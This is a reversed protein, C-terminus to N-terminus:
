HVQVRTGILLLRKNWLFNFVRGLIAEAPLFLKWLLFRDTALIIEQSEITALPRVHDRKWDRERANSDITYGVGAFVRYAMPRCHSTPECLSHGLSDYTAFGITMFASGLWLICLSARIVKYHGYVADALFGTVPYMVYVCFKMAFYLTITEGPQLYFYSNLLYFLVVFSGREAFGLLVFMFFVLCIRFTHPCRRHRQASKFRKPILKICQLCSNSDLDTEEAKTNVLGSQTKEKGREGEEEAEEEEEEQVRRLWTRPPPTPAPQVRVSNTGPFEPSLSLSNYRSSSCRSSSNYTGWLNSSSGGRSPGDDSLHFSDGMEDESDDLASLLPQGDGEAFSDRSHVGSM